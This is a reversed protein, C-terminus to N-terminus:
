SGPAPAGEPLAGVLCHYAQVKKLLVHDMYVFFTIYFRLRVSSRWSLKSKLTLWPPSRVGPPYPATREKLVIGECGPGM